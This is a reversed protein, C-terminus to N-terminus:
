PLTRCCIKCSTPEDGDIGDSSPPFFQLGTVLAVQAGAVRQENRDLCRDLLHADPRRNGYFSANGDDDLCLRATWPTGVNQSFPSPDVPFSHPLCAATLLPM